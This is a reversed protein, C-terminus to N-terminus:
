IIFLHPLQLSKNNCIFSNCIFCDCCCFKILCFKLRGLFLSLNLESNLLVQFSYNRGSCIPFSRLIFTQIIIFLFEFAIFLREICCIIDYAICCAFAVQLAVHLAGRFAVHSVLHFVVNGKCNLKKAFM